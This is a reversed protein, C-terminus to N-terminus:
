APKSYHSGDGSCVDFFTYGKGGVYFQRAEIPAGCMPCGEVAPRQALEAAKVLLRRAAQHWCPTGRQSAKCECGHPTVTYRNAATTASQIVLVEGDFAWPCAELNLAARNIANLETSEYHCENRM